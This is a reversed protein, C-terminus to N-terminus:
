IPTVIFMFMFLAVAIAVVQMKGSSKGFLLLAV